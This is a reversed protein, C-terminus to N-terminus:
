GIFFNCLAVLGPPNDPPLPAGATADAVTLVSMATLAFDSLLGRKLKLEPLMHMRCLLWLQQASCRELLAARNLKLELM